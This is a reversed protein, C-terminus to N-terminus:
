QTLVARLGRAERALERAAELAAASVSGPASPLASNSATKEDPDGLGTERFRRLRELILDRIEPANTVCHFLGTHMDAAEHNHHEGSGGGASKVKVDALGLLRQLPGQSVLVQQINAFSMTAESVRLVGQRLRLSRDTVMYWRMEYDLRRVAYTLPIQVLYVVFGFIKLAWILVFSGSPLLLALEVCAQKFGAWAHAPSGKRRVHGDPGREAPGTAADRINEVARKTLWKEKRAKASSATRTIPANNTSRSSRVPESAKTTPASTQAERQTRTKGEIQLLLTTWFIFGALAFLQGFAWGAMRLRFYNRGANFVRLSAPDGFPPHPEPPVKLLALAWRRILEYM